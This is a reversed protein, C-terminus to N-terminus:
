ILLQFRQGVPTVKLFYYLVMSTSPWAPLTNILFFFALVLSFSSFIQITRFAFCFFFILFGSLSLHRSRSYITNRTQIKWQKFRKGNINPKGWKYIYTLLLPTSPEYLPLDLSFTIYVVVSRNTSFPWTRAGSSRNCSIVRSIIFLASVLPLLFTSKCLSYQGRQYSFRWFPVVFRHLNQTFVFFISCSAVLRAMWHPPFTM